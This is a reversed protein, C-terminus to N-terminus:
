LCLALLNKRAKLPDHLAHCFRRGEIWPYRPRISRGYARTMSSPRFPIPSRACLRGAQGRMITAITALRSCWIPARGGGGLYDQRDRQRRVRCIEIRRALFDFGSGNSSARFAAWTWTSNTARAIRRSNNRIPLARSCSPAL